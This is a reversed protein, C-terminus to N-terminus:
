EAAREGVLDHTGVGPTLRQQSRGVGRPDHQQITLDDDLRYRGIDELIFGGM